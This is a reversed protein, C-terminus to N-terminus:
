NEYKARMKRLKELQFELSDGIADREEQSMSRFAEVISEENKLLYEHQARIGRDLDAQGRALERQDARIESQGREIELMQIGLRRQDLAIELQDRRVKAVGITLQGTTIYDDGIEQEYKSGTSVLKTGADIFSNGREVDARLKQDFKELQAFFKDDSRVDRDFGQISQVSSGQEPQDSDGLSQSSLLSQPSITDVQADVEVRVSPQYSDSHDQSPAPGSNFYDNAIYLLIQNFSKTSVRCLRQGRYTMYRHHHVEDLKLAFKTVGKSILDVLKQGGGKTAVRCVVESGDHMTWYVSKKTATLNKIIKPNLM